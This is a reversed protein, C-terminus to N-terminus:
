PAIQWLGDYVTLTGSESLICTRNDIRVATETPYDLLLTVNSCWGPTEIHISAEPFLKRMRRAAPILEPEKLHQQDLFLDAVGSEGILGMGWPALRHDPPTYTPHDSLFGGHAYLWERAQQRQRAWPVTWGLWLCVITVALLLTRISYRLWRYRFLLRM